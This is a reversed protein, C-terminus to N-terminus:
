EGFRDSELLIVQTRLSFLNVPLLKSSGFVFTQHPWVHHKPFCRSFFPPGSLRHDAVATTRWRSPGGSRCDTTTQTTAKPFAGGQQDRNIVVFIICRDPKTLVVNKQNYHKRKGCGLVTMEKFKRLVFAQRLSEHTM